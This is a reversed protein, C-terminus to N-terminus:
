SNYSYDEKKALRKLINSSTGAPTTSGLSQMVKIIADAWGDREEDNYACLSHRNFQKSTVLENITLAHRYDTTITDDKAQRGVLADRLEIVGKRDGGKFHYYDLSSSNLIFYRAKWKGFLKGEKRSLYGEKIAAASNFRKAKKNSLELFNYLIVIDKLKQLSALICKFYLELQIKTQDIMLPAHSSFITESPLHEGDYGQLRLLTDLQAFDSYTKLTFSIEKFRDNILNEKNNRVLLRTSLSRTLIAKKGSKGFHTIGIGVVAVRVNYLVDERKAVLTSADCSEVNDKTVEVKTM